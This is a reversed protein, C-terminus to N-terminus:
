DARRSAQRLKLYEGIVLTAPYLVQEENQAHMILAEAFATHDPKAEDKAAAALKQLAETMVQHENLMKSYERGLREAMRIAEQVEADDLSENRALPELLGLPPM